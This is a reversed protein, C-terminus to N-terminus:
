TRRLVSKLRQVVPSADRYSSQMEPTLCVQVTSQHLIIWRDCTEQERADRWRVGAANLRLALAPEQQFRVPLPSTASLAALSQLQARSDLERVGAGLGFLGAVLAFNVTLVVLALRSLLRTPAGTGLVLAAAILALPLLNLQPVYRAWWPEPFVLAMALVVIPLSLALRAGAGRRQALAVLVAAVSMVLGLSFWPGFGGIRMDTKAVFASLEERHIVGPWKYRFPARDVEGLDSHSASFLSGLLQEVQGRQLVGSPSNGTIIDVKADGALPHLPHGHRLTNSVYPNWALLLVSPMLVLAVLGTLRQVLSLRRALSAVVAAAFVIVLAYALGSSKITPLLALALAAPPWPGSLSFGADARTAVRLAQSALVLMLSGLLSDNMHTPWQYALVPNAAALGAIWFATRPKLAPLGALAGYALLGAAGALWVHLSKGLEISSTADLWAASWTWPGKAYGNIWLAHLGLAPEDRLPNWGEGLLRIALQHYQQGDYSYDKVLAALALSGLAVSLTLAGALRAERHGLDTAALALVTAAAVAGAVLVLAGNLALGISWTANASALCAVVFSLLVLGAVHGARGYCPAAPVDPPASAGAVCPRSSLYPSALRVDQQGSNLRVRTRAQSGELIVLYRLAPLACCSERSGSCVRM